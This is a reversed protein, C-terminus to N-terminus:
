AHTRTGSRAQDGEIQTLTNRSGIRVGIAAGVALASSCSWSNRILGGDM